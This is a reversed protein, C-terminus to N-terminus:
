RVQVGREHMERVAQTNVTSRERDPRLAGSPALTHLSTSVLAARDLATAPRTVASPPIGPQGAVPLRWSVERSVRSGWAATAHAPSRPSLGGRCSICVAHRCVGPERSDAAPEPCQGQRALLGPPRTARRALAWAHGSVPAGRHCFNM